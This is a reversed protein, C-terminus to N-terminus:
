MDDQEHNKRAAELGEAGSETPNGKRVRRMLREEGTSGQASKAEVAGCCTMGVTEAGEGM